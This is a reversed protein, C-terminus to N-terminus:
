LRYSSSIFDKTNEMKGTDKNLMDKTGTEISVVKFEDDMMKKFKLLSNTRKGQYIVNERLMLGEWENDTSEKALKAFSETTYKIQELMKINSVGEITTNLNELRTTLIDKSEFNYFDEESILDFAYYFPNPMTYNKRKIKEMIGKFNEKDGVMDVVEGDLFCNGEFNSLNNLISDRLVGLTTFIKGQRSYFVVTKKEVNIHALCRVGDLKRSIFWDESSKEIRKPDYKNALVVKFVKILGPFVKNIETKGMRIKLSKDIIEIIITEYDKYKNIYNHLTLLATDGTIKRAILDDLLDFINDYNNTKKTKNKKDNNVFKYYNKPTINFVDSNYVYSLLQKLDGFRKLVKKKSLTSNTENIEEKFQIIRKYFDVENVNNVKQEVVEITPELKPKMRIPARCELSVTYTILEAKKM